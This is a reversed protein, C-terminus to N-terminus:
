PGFPMPASNMRGAIRACRQPRHREAAALLSSQAGARQGRMLDDPEPAGALQRGGREGLLSGLSARARKAVPEPFPQAADFPHMEFPSSQVM